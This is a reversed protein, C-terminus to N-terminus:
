KVALAANTATKLASKATDTSLIFITAGTTMLTIGALGIGIRKWFNPDILHSAVSGVAETASIAGGIIPINSLLGGGGKDTKNSGPTGIAGGGSPKTSSSGGFSSLGKAAGASSAPTNSVKVTPTLENVNVSYTTPQYPLLWNPNGGYSKNGPANVNWSSNTLAASFVPLPANAALAARIPAMNNQNMFLGFVTAARDLSPFQYFVYKSPRVSGYGTMNLPNNDRAWTGQQTGTETTIWRQINSINNQTVPLNARKLALAAWDATSWTTSPPKTATPM